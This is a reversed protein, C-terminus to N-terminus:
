CLRACHLALLRVYFLNTGSKLALAVPQFSSSILVHLSAVVKRVAAIALLMASMAKMARFTTPQLDVTPAYFIILVASIILLTVALKWGFSM